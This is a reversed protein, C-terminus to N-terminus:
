CNALIGNDIAHPDVSASPESTSWGSTSSTDSGSAGWTPSSKSADSTLSGVSSRRTFAKVLKSMDLSNPSYASPEVSEKRVPSKVLTFKQKKLASFASQKFYLKAMLEEPSMKSISEKVIDDFIIELGMTRLAGYKKHFDKGM